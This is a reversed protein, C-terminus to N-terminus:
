DHEDATLDRYEAEHSPHAAVVAMAQNKGSAQYAPVPASSSSHVSSTITGFVILVFLGALIWIWRKGSLPLREEM